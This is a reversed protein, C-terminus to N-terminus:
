TTPLHRVKPDIRGYRLDVALNILPVGIGVSIIMGAFFLRASVWLKPGLLGSVARGKYVFSDGFDGTLANGIYRFYRVPIPDNLGRQERLREAREETYNQGLAVEVPDGPGYEGLVFVFLSVAVLLVPTWLLRRVTYALM